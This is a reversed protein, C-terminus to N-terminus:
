SPKDVSVFSGISGVDEDFEHQEQLHQAPVGKLAGADQENELQAM